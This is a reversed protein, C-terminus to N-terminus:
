KKLVKRKLVWHYVNQKGITITYANVFEWGYGNLYNLADIMSNFIIKSGDTNILFDRGSFFPRFQGFDISIDVRNSFLRQFGLIICYEETRLSGISDIIIKEIKENKLVNKVQYDYYFTDIQILSIIRYNDSNPTKTYSIASETVDAIYCKITDHTKTIILDQSRAFFWNCMFLLFIIKRM